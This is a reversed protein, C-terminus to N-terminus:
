RSISHQSDVGGPPLVSFLSADNLQQYRSSANDGTSFPALYSNGDIFGHGNTAPTGADSPAYVSIAPQADLAVCSLLGIMLVVLVRIFQLGLHSM